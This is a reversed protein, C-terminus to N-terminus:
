VFEGPHLCRYCLGCRLDSSYLERPGLSVRGCERCQVLAVGLKKLLEDQRHSTYLARVFFGVTAGMFAAGWLGGLYHSILYFVLWWSLFGVLGKLAETRERQEHARNSADI